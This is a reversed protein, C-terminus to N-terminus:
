ERGRGSVWVLDLDWQGWGLLLPGLLPRPLQVGRQGRVLSGHQPSVGLSLTHAHCTWCRAQSFLIDVPFCALVRASVSLPSNLPPFSAQSPYSSSVSRPSHSLDDCGVAKLSPVHVVRERLVELRRHHPPPRPRPRVGGAGRLAGGGTAGGGLGAGLHFQFLRSLLTQTVGTTPPVRGDSACVHLRATWLELNVVCAGGAPHHQWGRGFLFGFLCSCM